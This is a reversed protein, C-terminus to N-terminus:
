HGLQEQMEQTYSNCESNSWGAFLVRIEFRHWWKTVKAISDCKTQKLPVEKANSCCQENDDM